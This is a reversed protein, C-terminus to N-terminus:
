LSAFIDSVKLTFGPLVEGGDLIGDPSVTIVDQDSMYIEIVQEDPFVLWVLKTGGQIYKEAKARLARKRDTPSKVEVALDPPVLVERRPEEPLREKSIYGVDPNFVDGNPMIYGGDAGTVHALKHNLVHPKIHFGITLAISSPKFSPMKEVVEGDILDFIRGANEPRDCFAQYEEYTLKHITDQVAM